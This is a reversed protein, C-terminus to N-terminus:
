WSMEWKKTDYLRDVLYDFWQRTTLDYKDYTPNRSVVHMLMLDGLSFSPNKSEVLRMASCLIHWTNLVVKIPALNYMELFYRLFPSM